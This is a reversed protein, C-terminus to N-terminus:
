VLSSVILRTALSARSSPRTGQSGTQQDGDMNEHENEETEQAQAGEVCKTYFVWFASFFAILLPPIVLSIFAKAAVLSRFYFSSSAPSIFSSLQCDLAVAQDGASSATHMFSFM